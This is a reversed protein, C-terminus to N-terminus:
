VNIYTILSGSILDSTLILGLTQLSLILNPDLKINRFIADSHNRKQQDWAQNSIMVAGIWAKDEGPPLM